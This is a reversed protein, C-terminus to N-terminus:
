GYQALAKIMKRSLDRTPLFICKPPKISDENMVAEMMAEILAQPYVETYFDFTRCNSVADLMSKKPEFPDTMGIEEFSDYKNERDLESKMKIIMFGDHAVGKFTKLVIPDDNEDSDMEDNDEELEINGKRAENVMDLRKLLYAKRDNFIEM